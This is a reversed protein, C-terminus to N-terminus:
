WEFEPLHEFEYGGASFRIKEVGELRAKIFIDQFAKSYGFDELEKILDLHGERESMMLPVYFFSSYRDTEIAILYPSDAQLILEGDKKTIHCTSIDLLIQYGNALTFFKNIPKLLRELLKNM